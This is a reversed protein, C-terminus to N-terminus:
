EGKKKKSAVEAENLRKKSETIFVEQKKAELNCHGGDIRHLCEQFAMVAECPRSCHMYCRGRRDHLKFTLEDPYGFRSCFISKSNKPQFKKVM